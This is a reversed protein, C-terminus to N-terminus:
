AGNEVEEKEVGDRRVWGEVGLIGGDVDPDVPWKRLPMVDLGSRWGAEWMEVGTWAIMAANDTCLEGPPAVIEIREPGYGRSNLMARLVTKLYANRAVGGSVVLTRVGALKDTVAPGAEGGLCLLIRTALHEFALRMAAAALARRADLPLPSPTTTALLLRSIQTGLGAFDYALRRSTSLPPTLTAILEGTSPSLVPLRAIEDRRTPPPTYTPSPAPSSPPFAFPELAAAYMTNPLQDLIDQPVLLRATKDLMDGIALGSLNPVLIRHVTLSESLVLMTHGGSVLLSLFPFEPSPRYPQTTKGASLATVLRPTLAHAQMHNVGLLPVDWALALGKALNLGVALNQAMGPGRTVTVFDPKTPTSSPLHAVAKQILPGLAQTHGAIAVSPHVGGYQRSDSTVKGNFHLTAGGSPHKELVAVCTDDCSTEIALTVLTRRRPPPAAHRYRGARPQVAIQRLEHGSSTSVGKLTISSICRSSNRRILAASKLRKALGDPRLFSTLPRM